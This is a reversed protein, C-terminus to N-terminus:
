TLSGRDRKDFSGVSVLGRDVGEMNKTENGVFGFHRGAKQRCLQGELENLDSSTKILLFSPKYVNKHWLQIYSTRQVSYEQLAVLILNSFM